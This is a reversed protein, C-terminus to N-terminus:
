GGSLAGASSEIRSRVAMRYGYWLLLIGIMLSLSLGASEGFATFIGAIAPVIAGAVILANARALEPNSRMSRSITAVSLVLIVVTGVGGSIAAFMRPGPFTLADIMFSFGFVDSGEPIGEKPLASVFPAMFTSFFGLVLWLTTPVLVRRAAKESVVLAVSGAALLPINAVAGLYFFGRFSLSTWGLGLGAALAWAALAFAAFATMWVEAHLRKRSRWSLFLETALASSVTAAVISFVLEMAALTCASRHM